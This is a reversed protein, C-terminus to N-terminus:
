ARIQHSPTADSRIHISSSEWGCDSVARRLLFLWPQQLQWGVAEFRIQQNGDTRSLGDIDTEIQVVVGDRRGGDPM